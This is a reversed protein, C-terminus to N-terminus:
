WIGPKTWAELRRRCTKYSYGMELPLDEWAIGTKLVFLICTLVVQSPVPPRGDRPSPEYVPFFPEIERWLEDTLFRASM